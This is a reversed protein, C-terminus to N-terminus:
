MAPYSWNDTELRHRYDDKLQDYRAHGAGNGGLRLYERGAELQHEHETRNLTPLFLTQRYLELEIHRITKSNAISKELSRLDRRDARGILWSTITSVTGSGLIAAGVTLLDILHPTM